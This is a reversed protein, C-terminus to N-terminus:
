SREDCRYCEDLTLRQALMCITASAHTNTDLCTTLLVDLHFPLTLERAFFVDRSLKLHSLLFPRPKTESLCAKMTM